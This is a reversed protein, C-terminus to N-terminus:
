ALPEHYLNTPRPHPRRRMTRGSPDLAFRKGLFHVGESLCTLVKHHFEHAQTRGTADSGFRAGISRARADDLCCHRAVDLLVRTAFTDPTTPVIPPQAVASRASRLLVTDIRSRRAIPELQALTAEFEGVATESKSTRWLSPEEHAQSLTNLAEVVHPLIQSGGSEKVMRKLVLEVAFAIEEADAGGLYTERVLKWCRGGPEFEDQDPVESVESRM